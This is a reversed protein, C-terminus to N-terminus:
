CGVTTHKNTVGLVSTNLTFSYRLFQDAATGLLVGNVKIDAGMKVCDFVLM